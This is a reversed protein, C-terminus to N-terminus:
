QAAQLLKMMEKTNVFGKEADAECEKKGYPDSSLQECVDPRDFKAGLFFYCLGIPENKCMALGEEYTKVDLISKEKIEGGTAEGQPPTGIETNPTPAPAAAEKKGCGAGLFLFAGFILVIGGAYMKTKQTMHKNLLRRFAPLLIITNGLKLQSQFASISFSAM